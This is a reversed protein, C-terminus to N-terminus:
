EAAPVPETFEVQSLITEVHPSHVLYFLEKGRKNKKGLKVVIRSEGRARKMIWARLVYGNDMLEQLKM